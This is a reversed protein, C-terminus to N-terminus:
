LFDNQNDNKIEFCDIKKNKCEGKSATAYVSSFDLYDKPLSFDSHTLHHNSTIVKKNEVLLGQIYRIDDEFKKDLFHEILKVENRTYYQVFRGKDCSLNDTTASANIKVIFTEYAQNTTM